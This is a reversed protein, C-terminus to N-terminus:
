RRIAIELLVFDWLFHSFILIKLNKFKWYHVAFILSIFIPGLINIVTGYTCHLLGFLISSVVIAIYPNKFYMELRPQIYGRFLVEETIGATVATFLLLAYNNKFIKIMRKIAVSETELHFIKVILGLIAASFAILFFMGIISLPYFWFNYDKEKWLILKQGELKTAYAWTALLLLWFILRSIFITQGGVPLHLLQFLKSMFIIAGFLLAIVITVGIIPSKTSIFEQKNM